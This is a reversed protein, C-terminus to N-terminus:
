VLVFVEKESLGLGEGDMIGHVYCEGVLEWRRDVESKRRLLFPTQAGWLICIVDGVRALEPVLMFYGKEESISFMRGQIGFGTSASFDISQKNDEQIQSRLNESKIRPYSAEITVDFSQGVGDLGLRAYKHIRNFAEFSAAYESPAPRTWKSRDGIWTRWLAETRSQGNPYINPSSLDAWLIADELVLARQRAKESLETETEDDLPQYRGCRGIQDIYEGSCELELSNLRIKIDPVTNGCARYPYTEHGRWLPTAGTPHNWDTTWSPINSTKRRHGVGARHLFRFPDNQSLFHRATDIYISQVSNQYKGLLTYQAAYDAIGLLSYIKDKPRTVESKIAFDFLDEFSMSGQQQVKDRVYSLALINSGRVSLTRPVHEPSALVFLSGVNQNHLMHLTTIFFDWTMSTGGYLIHLNEAAAIEQIIWGRSWYSQSFLASLAPWRPSGTGIGLITKLDAGQPKEFMLRRHLNIIFRMAIGADSQSPLCILVMSARGYIEKMLPIQISKESEDNPDQNICVSDIWIMRSTWFTALDDLAQYANETITLECGDVTIIHPPGEWRYSIADYSPCGDLGYIFLEFNIPGYPFQRSLRLLRISRRDFLPPYVYKSTRGSSIEPVFWKIWMKNCFLITARPVTKCLLIAYAFFLGIMNVLMSRCKKLYKIPSGGILFWLFAVLIIVAIPFVLARLVLLVGYLCHLTTTFNHCLWSLGLYFSLWLGEDVLILLEENDAGRASVHRSISGFLKGNSYFLWLLCHIPWILPRFLELFRYEYICAELGISDLLAFRIALLPGRSTANEYINSSAISVPPEQNVDDQQRFTKIAGIVAETFLINDM